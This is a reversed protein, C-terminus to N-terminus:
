DILVGGTVSSSVDSNAYHVSRVRYYYGKQVPFQKGSSVIASNYKTELWSEYRKWVGDVKREVIVNVSIESVVKQAVTTGNAAIWGKGLDSIKSSGNQLYVGYPAPAEATETLLATSEAAHVKEQVGLTGGVSMLVAMAVAASRTRMRKKM